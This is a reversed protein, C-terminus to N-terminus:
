AERKRLEALRADAWAMAETEIGLWEYEPLVQWDLSPDEGLMAYAVLKGAEDHWLRIYERPNLHCDVMFFGFVVEGVHAYRWDGTRARADMLLGQMQQLDHETEYLRSILPRVPM